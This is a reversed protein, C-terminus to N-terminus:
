GKRGDALKYVSGSERKGVALVFFIQDSPEFLYILRYGSVSDKIKYCNALRGSLRSAPVLPNVLRKELKKKLRRRIGEDVFGWERLAEPHFQLVAGM